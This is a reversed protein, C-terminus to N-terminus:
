VLRPGAVWASLVIRRGKTVRSLGHWAFSPFLLCDGKDPAARILSGQMFLEGGEWCAKKVLPVVATIKSQDTTKYDFDSHHRTYGGREYKQIRMPEVMSSLVFGWINEEAFVLAIKEYAWPAHKPLLYCIEVQRNIRKGASRYYRGGTEAFHVLEDCEKATFLRRRIRTWDTKRVPLPVPYVSPDLEPRM